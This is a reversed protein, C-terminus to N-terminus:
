NGANEGLVCGRVAVESGTRRAEGAVREGGGEGNTISEKEDPFSRM